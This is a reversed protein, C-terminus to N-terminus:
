IIKYYYTKRRVRPVKRKPLTFSITTMLETGKTKRKEKKKEGRERERKFNQPKKQHNTLNWQTETVNLPPM